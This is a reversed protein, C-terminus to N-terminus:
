AADVHSNSPRQNRRYKRQYERMTELRRKKKCRDCYRQRPKLIAGCSCQRAKKVQVQTVSKTRGQYQNLVSEGCGTQWATPLVAKEFYACRKGQEVDCKESLLCGGYYHDYNSCGPTGDKSDSSGRLFSLLGITRRQKSM